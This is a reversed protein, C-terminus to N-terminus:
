QALHAYLLYMMVPVVFISLATIFGTANSRWAQIEAVSGNTKTTQDLIKDLKEDIVKFMEDLMPETYKPM